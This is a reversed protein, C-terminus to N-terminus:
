PRSAPASATATTPTNLQIVTAGVNKVCGMYTDYTTVIVGDGGAGSAAKELDPFFDKIDHRTCAWTESGHGEYFLTEIQRYPKDTPPALFVAPHASGSTGAKAGEVPVNSVTYSYACGAAGLALVLCLSRVSM